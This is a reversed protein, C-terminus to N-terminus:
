AAAEDDARKGEAITEISDERESRYGQRLDDGGHENRPEHEPM